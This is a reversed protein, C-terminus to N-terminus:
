MYETPDTVGSQDFAEKREVCTGCLGCHLEGGKYCSWTDVFPVGLEAGLSVIDAKTKDIFPTVLTLAKWDALSFATQMASMFAPRCDPYVCHDGAHAGIALSDFDNAMAIGGAISLMIMNRNPVVTSRMSSDEYHGEPIKDSGLLSCGGVALLAGVGTLDVVTHTVGLTECQRQAFILEKDHKQGYSFSVALTDRGQKLMFYLLVTSDLGGSLAVMTKM